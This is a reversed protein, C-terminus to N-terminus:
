VGRGRAPDIAQLLALEEATHVAMGKGHVCEIMNLISAINGIGFDLVGTM